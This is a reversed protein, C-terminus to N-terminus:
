VMKVLDVATKLIIEKGMERALLDISDYLPYREAIASVDTISYLDADRTLHLLKASMVAYEGSKQSSTVAQEKMLFCTAHWYLHSCAGNSVVFQNIFGYVVM